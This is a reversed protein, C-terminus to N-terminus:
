VYLYIYGYGNMEVSEEFYMTVADTMMTINGRSDAAGTTVYLSKGDLTMHVSTQGPPVIVFGPGTFSRNGGQYGSYVLKARVRNGGGANSTQMNSLTTNMATLQAMINDMKTALKDVSKEIGSKQTENDAISSLIRGTLENQSIDQGM